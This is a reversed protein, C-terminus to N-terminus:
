QWPSVRDWAAKFAERWYADEATPNIVATPAAVSPSM